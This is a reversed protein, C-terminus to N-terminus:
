PTPTVDKPQDLEAPLSVGDTNSILSPIILPQGIYIVNADIINNTTTIADVSTNFALAISELTDGQRVLYLGPAQATPELALAFTTKTAELDITPAPTLNFIPNPTARNTVPTGCASLLLAISLGIWSRLRFM